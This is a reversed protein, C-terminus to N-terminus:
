KNKRRRWNERVERRTEKNKKKKKKKLEGEGRWRRCEGDRAIGDEIVNKM